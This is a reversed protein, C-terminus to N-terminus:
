DRSSGACAGPIEPIILLGCRTTSTRQLRLAANLCISQPGNLAKEKVQQRIRGSRDSPYARGRPLLHEPIATHSHVCVAILATNSAPLSFDQASFALLLQERSTQALTQGRVCMVATQSDSM